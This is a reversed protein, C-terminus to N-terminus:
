SPAGRQNKQREAHHRPAGAVADAQPPLQATGQLAERRHRAQVGKHLCARTERRGEGMHRVGHEQEM